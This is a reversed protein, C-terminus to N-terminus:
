EPEAAEDPSAKTDETNRRNPLSLGETGAAGQQAKGIFGTQVRQLSSINFEAAAADLPPDEAADEAALLSPEEAAEDAADEPRQFQLFPWLTFM